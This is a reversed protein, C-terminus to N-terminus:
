LLIDSVYSKAVPFISMKALKLQCVLVYKM